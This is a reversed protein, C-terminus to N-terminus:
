HSKAARRGARAVAAEASPTPDGDAEFIRDDFALWETLDFDARDVRVTTGGWHAPVSDDAGSLPFLTLPMTMRRYDYSSRHAVTQWRGAVRCLMEITTPPMITVLRPMFDNGRPEALRLSRVIAVDADVGRERTSRLCLGAVAYDALRTALQRDQDAVAEKRRLTDVREPLLYPRCGSALPVFAHRTVFRDAKTLADAPGLLVTDAAGSFLLRQCDDGCQELSKGSGSGDDLLAITGGPPLRVVIATDAADLAAVAAATARNAFYPVATGVAVALLAGSLLTRWDAWGSKFLRAVLYPAAALTFYLFATPAHYAVFLIPITIILVAWWWFVGLQMAAWATGGLILWLWIASRELHRRGWRRMPVAAVGEVM